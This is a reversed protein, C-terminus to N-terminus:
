VPLIKDVPCLNYFVIKQLESITQSFNVLNGIHASVGRALDSLVHKAGKKLMDDFIEIAQKGMGHQSYGTIMANWSVLDKRSLFEFIKQAESIRGCKSYMTIVANVVSTDLILGVKVTYGIIQDGLKNAGMDACGRFLTVYTVWNPIVDKETLMASYMKLGDEGAGHQIYAGLMANWTIVNRTSMGDFFERAKGIDGVQSYATLMGTWSVIDREEMSSFISEANQLNGCKAYMSILSNSIVVVQTHGSKLSLSHLQRALCMDMKNSCGSIITALAFHDVTMLEARMQNFLELSESFCGYQLFGGILVTWSVTNRDRLSSFVRRAEKFCSCKAYLEVMANAVYPDIRPLSRIVQAHLQKGWGLSSLKACATLGNAKIKVIRAETDVPRPM